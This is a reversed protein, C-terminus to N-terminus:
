KGLCSIARSSDFSRIAEAIAPAALKSGAYNLHDRDFYLTKGDKFSFCTEPGCFVDFLNVLVVNDYDPIIERVLNEYWRLSKNQVAESKKTEPFKKNNLFALPRPMFSSPDQSIHPNDLVIVVNKGKERLFNLGKRIAESMLTTSDAKENKEIDWSDNISTDPNHAIVVTKIGPNDAITKYAQAILKWGNKRGNRMEDTLTAMGPWPAQGSAPFVGINKEGLEDCLGPYLQMAHSDGIIAMDLKEPESQMAVHNPADTFNKWDPFFPAAFAMDKKVQEVEWTKQIELNATRAPFGNKISVLCSFGGIFIVGIGLLAAAKGNERFKLRLPHFIYFCSISAFVFSLSLLIIKLFSGVHEHGGYLINAYSLLPWHWLYLEYSILGTFVAIKNRLLFRSLFNDPRALILFLTGCVPMAVLPSPWLKSIDPILFSAIILLFGTAALFLSTKQSFKTRNPLLALLAGACLGFSRTLPSFYNAVDMNIGGFIRKGSETMFFISGACFLLTLFVKKKESTALFLLLPFVIYFQEEVALSWLHMLPKLSNATDFYGSEMVLLFNAGFFAGFLSSKGLSEYETGTMLLFGALLSFSLIAMLPPFIRLIRRSYFKRFSFNGAAMERRIISTILYGSIVFFIDVGIFGSPFFEPWAHFLMVAVIAVARLGDIDPRYEHRSFTKTM